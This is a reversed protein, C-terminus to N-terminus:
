RQGEAHARVVWRGSETPLTLRREAVAHIVQGADLLRAFIPSYQRPVRGLRHTGQVLVLTAHRDHANDPERVLTVPDGVRVTEAGVGDQHKMGAVRFSLPVSLDDDEPRFEALEIRDTLQVGGSRALIEMSDAPDTVGWSAILADFDPRKMSPIRQAFTSFLPSARYPDVKTRHKPFEMMLAFGRAYAHELEDRYAFAYTTPGERWLEGIIHRTGDVADGWLGFLRDCSSM